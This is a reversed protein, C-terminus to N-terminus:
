KTGPGKVTGCIPEIYGNTVNPAGELIAYKLTM